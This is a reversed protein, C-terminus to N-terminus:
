SGLGPAGTRLVTVSTPAQARAESSASSLGLVAFTAAVIALILRRVQEVGQM